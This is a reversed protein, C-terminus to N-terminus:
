TNESILHPIFFCLLQEGQTQEGMDGMGAEGAALSAKMQVDNEQMVDHM